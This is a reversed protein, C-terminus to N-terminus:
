VLSHIPLVVLAIRHYQFQALAPFYVATNNLAFYLINLLSHPVSHRLTFQKTAVRLSSRLKFFTTMALLLRVLSTAIWFTHFRSDSRLSAFVFVPSTSPLLIYITNIFIYFSFANGDHIIFLAKSRM